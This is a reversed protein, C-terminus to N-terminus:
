SPFIENNNKDYFKEFYVSGGNKMEVADFYLDSNSIDIYEKNKNTSIGYYKLKIKKIKRNENYLLLVNISNSNSNTPEKIQITSKDSYGLCIIKVYPPLISKKFLGIAYKKNGNSEYSYCFALKSQFYKKREIKINSLKQDSPTKETIVKIVQSDFKDQNFYVSSKNNCLIIIFLLLLIIPISLINTLKTYLRM